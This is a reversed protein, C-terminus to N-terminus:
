NNKNKFRYRVSEGETFKEAEGSEILHGWLIDPIGDIRVAGSTLPTKYLALSIDNMTRLRETGLNQGAFDDYTRTFDVVPIPKKINVGDRTLNCRIECYGTIKAEQTDMLYILEEEEESSNSEFTKIQIAGYTKESPSKTISFLTHFNGPKYQEPLIFLSSKNEFHELVDKPLDSLKLEEISGAPFYEILKKITSPEQEFKEFNEKM